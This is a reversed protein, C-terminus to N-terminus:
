NGCFGSNIGRYKGVVTLIGAYLGSCKKYLRSLKYFLKPPPPVYVTTASVSAFTIFICLAYCVCINTKLKPFIRKTQFVSLRQLCSEPDIIM